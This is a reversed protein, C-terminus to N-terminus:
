DASQNIALNDTQTLIVETEMNDVPQLKHLSGRKNPSLQDQLGKILNHQKSRNPSAINTEIKELSKTKGSKPMFNNRKSTQNSHYNAQRQKRAELTSEIAESKKMNTNILDVINDQQYKYFKEPAIDSQKPRLKKSSESM